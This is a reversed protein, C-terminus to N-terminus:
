VNDVELVPELLQPELQLYRTAARKANIDAWVREVQEPTLGTARAVDARPANMVKTWSPFTRRLSRYARDRNLDNTNQSLIAEVMEDLVSGRGM